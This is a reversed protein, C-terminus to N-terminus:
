VIMKIGHLWPTTTQQKKLQNMWSCTNIIYKGGCYKQNNSTMLFDKNCSICKKIKMGGYRKFVNTRNKYSCGTKSISSGCYKHSGNNPEFLTNCNKCTKM